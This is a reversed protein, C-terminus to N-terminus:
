THAIRRTFLAAVTGVVEVEKRYRWRLENGDPEPSLMHPVIRLWQEERDLACFGCRYGRRTFLFYIPRDFDNSWERRKAIAKRQTDILVISGALVMPEMNHDRRGIIGRRFHSPLVGEGIPLLATDEPPPDAMIKDPLWLRAHEELPGETLLLTTNPSAVNELHTSSDSGGPCLALMQDMTLSYIFTLAILKTGSLERDEREIRDLWSASIRYGSQGRQRALMFSREEVERLTFGLRSRAARLQAGMGDM